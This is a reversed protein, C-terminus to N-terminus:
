LYQMQKTTMSLM